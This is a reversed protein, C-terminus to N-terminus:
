FRFQFSFIAYLIYIQLIDGAEMLSRHIRFNNFLFNRGLIVITDREFCLCVFIFFNERFLYGLFKIFLLRYNTPFNVSCLSTSSYRIQRLFIDFFLNRRHIFIQQFVNAVFNGSIVFLTFLKRPM